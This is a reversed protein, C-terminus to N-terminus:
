RNLWYSLKVLFTNMPYADFLRDLDGRLSRDGEQSEFDDRGQTWVVFLTSGPRYEWRMVLNSRFQKVNFAGPDNTVTTDGYPRFRDPYSPARPDALERLDTYTGKSVFPSAYLQVSLTPTLTYDFRLTISTTKQELHAFTYSTIGSITDTFNGYWQWDDRNRSFRVGLSTTVGSAIRVDVSPSIGVFESRGGDGQWYDVFLYPVVPFRTDGEMGAWVSVAPDRRVAPGGRACNDCYTGGLASLTGGAHAWWRNKLQFHANTNAARETPLGSAATWFQWWNFNWFGQLYISQPKRFNLAGWTNWSQQDARQLFGMDNIEFGPSRRQYSTEFRVMGGGVKRFYFEEADGTLSTRTTDFPIEGDPRQYLHVNSAQTAAIADASGNVRSVALRTAV